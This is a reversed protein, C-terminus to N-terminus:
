MLSISTKTLVLLFSSGNDKCILKVHYGRFRGLFKREKKKKKENAIGPETVVLKIVASEVPALHCIVNRMILTWQTRCAKCVITGQGPMNSDPQLATFFNYLIQFQAKWHCQKTTTTTQQQNNITNTSHFTSSHFASFWSFHLFSTTFDVTTVWRDAM